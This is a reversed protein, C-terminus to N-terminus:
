KLSTFYYRILEDNIKFSTGLRYASIDYHYGFYLPLIVFFSDSGSQGSSLDGFEVAYMWINQNQRSDCETTDSEAAQGLSDILNDNRDVLDINVGVPVSYGGPTTNTVTYSVPMVGDEPGAQCANLMSRGSFPLPPLDNGHRVGYVTLHLRLTYGQSSPGVNFSHQAIPPGLQHPGPPLPLLKEAVIRAAEKPEAPKGLWDYNDHQTMGWTYMDFPHRPNFQCVPDRGHCYSLVMPRGAFVARKGLAGHLRSVYTGRAAPDSGNFKPDGFLVVAAVNVPGKQVFDAAAQAGQSYGTLVILTSPCQRAEYSVAWGVGSVGDKESARYAGLDPIPLKAGLLNLLRRWGGWISAAPYFNSVWRINSKKRLGQLEKVFVQGPASLQGAPEGSGRSDIVLMDPCKLRATAAQAQETVAAFFVAALLAPLALFKIRM